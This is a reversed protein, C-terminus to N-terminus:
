ILETICYPPRNDDIGPQEQQPIINGQPDIIGHYRTVDAWIAAAKGTPTGSITAVAGCTPGIHYWGPAVEGPPTANEGCYPCRSLLTKINEPLTRNNKM